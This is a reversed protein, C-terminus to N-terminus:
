EGSAAVEALNWGWYEYFKEDCSKWMWEPKNERVWRPVSPQRGDVDTLGYEPGIDWVGYVRGTKEVVRPDAALAAVARGTYLPTESEGFDPRRAVADQWNEESVGMYDLMAESRIFGPSLAVATVDYKRLETAFLFALRIVSTKVFDYYFSGRYGFHDGDTIEVVLGGRTKSLLPAAHHATIVHSHVAREIMRLGKELSHQGFPKQEALEDGGWVDNVLIDLRGRESAVRAFLAEVAAPDTHDVRVAEGSGGRAEILEATEEITEPRRSLEFAALKRRRAAAKSVERPAARTSRGTCYVFAGAEALGLAIGRGTGRTAGAVVAVKGELSKM